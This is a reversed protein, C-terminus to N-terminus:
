SVLFNEGVDYVAVINPHNLAAVVRAEQEFRRGRTRSRARFRGASGETRRRSEAAHRRARYVEGMGGAGLKEVVRYHSITQGILAGASVVSSFIGSDIGGDGLAQWPPKDLVGEASQQLLSEVERRLDEDGGCAEKLFVSRREPSCDLASHYLREIEM